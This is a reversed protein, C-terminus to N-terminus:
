RRIPARVYVVNSLSINGARDMAGAVIQITGGRGANALFRFVGGSPAGGVIRGNAAVVTLGVGNADASGLTIVYYSGVRTLTRPAVVLVGPRTNDVIAGIPATWAQNGSTDTILAAITMAGDPHWRTSWPILSHGGGVRPGVAVGDVYLQVWAVGRDDSATVGTLVRDGGLPSTPPDLHGTPPTTDPPPPPPVAAAAVAAGARVQGHSAIGWTSFPLATAELLSRIDAATRAPAVSRMLAAVGSVVPTSSSTGCFSFLTSGSGGVNCFPATVDVWPGRNSNADIVDTSDTGGVAIVGPSAAPYAPATTGDNGAAALVMVGHATAYAVAQDIVDADDPGSLSMNVVKAGHDVAYVIGQAVTSLSGGGSSDLVKVPLVLCSWCVGAMGIGDDGRGAALTAVMTGHHNTTDDDSPDSDSNVFDYGGLVRGTLDATPTVGTDLVAITVGPSGTTTAWAQDVGAASLGSEFKWWPDDPVVAAAHVPPDIEVSRVGAERRLAAIARGGDDSGVTVRTTSLHALTESHSVAVGADSLAADVDASDTAPGRLVLLQLPRGAASSSSPTSSSSSSLASVASVPTVLAMVTVVGGVV